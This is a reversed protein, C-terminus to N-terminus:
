RPRVSTALLEPPYYRQFNDMLAGSKVARELLDRLQAQDEPTLSKRSIYAGSLIWPLEPLPELRLRDALGQVRKNDRITGAFITPAMITADAMGAQLLRAVALTDVELFLRHQKELEQILGQYAPGYDFGRVLAVRVERRELLDRMNLIPARASVISILVPRIGLMPVFSGHPDRRPTGSAPILLDAKGAEFMAELRARPVASFIFNCGAKAGMSRLLDPYIGSITTEGIIVSQGIAAVPVLIDRSCDARACDPASLTLALLLQFYTRAIM